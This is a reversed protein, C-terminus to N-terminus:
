RQGGSQSYSPDNLFAPDTLAELFVLLDEAEGDTLDLGLSGDPKKLAPDLTAFGKVGYRYHDLVHQISPFRGDHMYPATVMVNRLSPVKYKGIDDPDLTIRGRGWALKLNDESFESDLGNNRYSFDTFFVGAHCTGCHVGYVDFGRKAAESLVDREGRLYADLPADVSILTREFQALARVVNALTLGDGFAAEFMAPYSPHSALEEVLEDLDQDMERADVLPAFAQSELDSGGGDWFYGDMWALHMLVPSHRLVATGAVGKDTLVEGDSFARKPDHCTACAVKNNGSLLPDFFLARGLAVGQSTLPNRDPSAIQAVLQARTPWEPDVVELPESACGVAMGLWLPFSRLTRFFPRNPLWKWM